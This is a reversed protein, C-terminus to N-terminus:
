QIQQSQQVGWQLMDIVFCFRVKKKWQKLETVKLMFDYIIIYYM